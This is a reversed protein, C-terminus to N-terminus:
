VQFSQFLVALECGAVMGGFGAINRIFDDPDFGTGLASIYAEHERLSAVGIEITESVDVYHTPTSTGAVFAGAIGRWAPGTDPFMWENAADRCADLTALGVARHDAHNVGGAEGWTLEFNMTIVIEPKFRRIVRAIDRRLRVGYEVAGDPHELFEVENVGVLTASRRQEEERLPGAMEPSMGAIGAEGRTALVYTVDKGQLTWRAIASAAGYELDDPHAVVALARDWREDVPRVTM